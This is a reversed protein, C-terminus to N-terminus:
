PVRVLGVPLGDKTGGIRLNGGGDFRFFRGPQVTKIM